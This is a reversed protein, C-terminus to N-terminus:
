STLMIDIIILTVNWKPFSSITVITVHAHIGNDIAKQESMMDGARMCSMRTKCIGCGGHIYDYQYETVSAVELKMTQYHSDTYMGHKIRARVFVYTFLDVVTM